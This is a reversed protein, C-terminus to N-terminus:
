RRVVFDMKPFLIRRGIQFNNQVKASCPFDSLKIQVKQVNGALQLFIMPVLTNQKLKRPVKKTLGLCFIM